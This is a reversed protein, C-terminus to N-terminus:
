VSLEPQFSRLTSNNLSRSINFVSNVLNYKLSPFLLLGYCSSSFNLRCCGCSSYFFFLFFSFFVSGKAVQFKSKIQMRFTYYPLSFACLGFLAYYTTFKFTYSPEHPLPSLFLQETRVAMWEIRKIM